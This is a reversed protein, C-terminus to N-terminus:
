LVDSRVIYIKLVSSSETERAAEKEVYEIFEEITKDEPKKPEYELMVTVRAKKPKM